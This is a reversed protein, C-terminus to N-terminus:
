LRNARWRRLWGGLLELPNALWLRHKLEYSGRYPQVLGRLVQADRCADFAQRIESALQPHGLGEALAVYESVFRLSKLTGPGYAAADDLHDELENCLQLLILLRTEADLSHLNDLYGRMGAEDNWAMDGYRHVLREGREGLKDRLFQRDARRPGRRSSNKFYHLFYVAHLMAACVADLDRAETEAMVISATRILHCLFPQGDKRYVGDVLRQAIFHVESLRLLDPEALGYQAAQGMIQPYTM